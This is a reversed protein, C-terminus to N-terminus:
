LNTVVLVQPLEDAAQHSYDWIYFSKLTTHNNRGCIKCADYDNRELSGSSPNNQPGPEYKSNYSSTGLRSQKFVRGTSDFNNNGRRQSYIGRGRGRQTSFAMNHNQQPVEEDDERMDFVKLGLATALNIVKSYEDVSKHITKEELDDINNNDEAGNASKEVAVVKETTQGTSHTGKTPESEIILYTLIM